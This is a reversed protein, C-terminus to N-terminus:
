GPPGSSVELSRRAPQYPDILYGYGSEVDAGAVIVGLKAAPCSRLVRGLDNLMKERVLNLRTVVLLADVGSSLAIADGVRLLPPGDILVIDSSEQLEALIPALRLRAIFEGPNSPLFGAPLFHLSGEPLGYGSWTTRPPLKLGLNVPIVTSALPINGLVVDTLGPHSNLGFFRHLSPSRLDLDVLTVRRGARALVVALNAVTTSKGEKEVASTVMISRAETEFAAFEFNMRLMRFAEAHPGTPDDQMILRQRKRLRRPPRPLRGLLPLNLRGTIADASRIRSDLAECLLALGLGLLLGLALGMIVNKRVQPQVQGAGTAPQALVARPTLLSQMTELRQRQKVLTAYLPSDQKGAAALEAIHAQVTTEAANLGKRDLDLWYVTFQRAYANALRIAAAPDRYTVSFTLVDSDPDATVSSIGLLDSGSWGTLGAEAVAKSAVEPVRALQAQTNALRPVNLQTPDYVGELNAPLNQARILVGASAHYMAPERMSVLAAVIPVLVVAQLMIWKRRWLVHLYDRLTPTGAGQGM